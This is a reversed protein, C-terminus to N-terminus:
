SYLLYRLLSVMYYSSLAVVLAIIWSMFIYKWKSLLEDQGHFIIMYGAGVTMILLAMSGLGIMLKEIITGLTYNITETTTGKILSNWGPTVNWVSIEFSTSNICWTWKCDNEKEAFWTNIILLFSILILTLKKLM